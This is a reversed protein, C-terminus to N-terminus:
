QMFLTHRSFPLFYKIKKKPRSNSINSIGGHVSMKINSQTQESEVSLTKEPSPVPTSQRNSFGPISIEPFNIDKLPDKDPESKKPFFTPHEKKTARKPKNHEHLTDYGEFAVWQGGPMQRM